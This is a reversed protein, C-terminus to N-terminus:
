RTNLLSILGHSQYFLRWKLPMTYNSSTRLRPCRTVAAENPCTCPARYVLVQIRSPVYSGNGNLKWVGRHCESGDRISALYWLSLLFISSFASASGSLCSQQRVQVRLSITWLSICGSLSTGWGISQGIPMKHPSTAALAASFLPDPFLPHLLLLPAAVALAPASSASAPAADALAHAASCCCRACSSPFRICSCCCRACSCPFRTCEHLVLLLSRLLLPLAHWLLVLM